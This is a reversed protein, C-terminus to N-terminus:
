ERETHLAKGGESVDLNSSMAALLLTEFQDAIVKRNYHVAAYNRGNAGLTKALLPNRYLHLVAETIEGINEPAVCIGCNARQIVAQAEGEMAAIVPIGAGMAEFLKSPLTGKFLEHRKLTILAVDMAALIEPMRAAPQSSHFSVNLIQLQRAKEKLRAKEPGDGILLFAIESFDALSRGVELVDDLGYVLGHLGAYGVVFKGEVGLELKVRNRQRKHEVALQIFEPAVGNTLLAVEVQPCRRRISDVIGQTQGTVFSARRYLGEELRTAWRILRKNHLMGVVVASEPWLDSINLVLKAGKLKGLIYGSVGLFLPPSEVFVIDASGTACLGVVCSLISFSLYNLIRPLFRKKKTAYVWTRVVRVGKDNETMLLRGGFGEFFEGRPYNPLSTLVTVSHASSSLRSALDHLRNQAAGIEPPFFQTLILIRM